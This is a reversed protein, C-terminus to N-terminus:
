GLDGAAADLLLWARGGDSALLTAVLLGGRDRDAAEEIMGSFRQLFRDSQGRM